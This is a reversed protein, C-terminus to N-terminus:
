PRAETNGRPAPSPVPRFDDGDILWKRVCGEEFVSASWDRGTGLTALFALAALGSSVGCIGIKFPVWVVNVAAAGVDYGDVHGAASRANGETDIREPQPPAGAEPQTQAPAAAPGLGGALV